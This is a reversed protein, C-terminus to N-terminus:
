CVHAMPILWSADDVGRRGNRIERSIVRDAAEVTDEGASGNKLYGIFEEYSIKGDNNVDLEKMVQQAESESELVMAEDICDSCANDHHQIWPHELAQPATM